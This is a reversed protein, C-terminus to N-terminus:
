CGIIHPYTPTTTGPNRCVGLGKRALGAKMAAMATPNFAHWGMHMLVTDGAHSYAIVYSVVQSQTKGRWDGTDVDWLWMRMSKAAFADRVTFDYAMYPPRGYSSVVAPPSLQAIVGARSLTTLDPHNITHNIVYHGHSRAYSVSFRGTALCTGTPALVLAIGLRQAGLVASRFASWSPPCDDYSLVVRSSTNPGSRLDYTRGGNVLANWTAPGVVGDIDLYLKTSQYRRVAGLTGSGFTGTAYSAGISYGKRLLINQLVKVCSGTDGYHLAPRSAVPTSSSCSRVAAAASPPPPAVLALATLVLAVVALRATRVIVLASM